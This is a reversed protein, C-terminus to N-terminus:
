RTWTRNIFTRVALWLALGLLVLALALLPYGISWAVAHDDLMTSFESMGGLSAIVGLPLFVVNIITLNKLLVNMNNNILNGRADLMGALVTSFVQGQRSCQNNDIIIDDLLARDREDFGLRDALARLKRLVGGNADVANIHYVLGESLSFMRLLQRNELSHSLEAQIDRSTRKVAKLELLFENVTAGMLHLLVDLPTDAREGVRLISAEDATVITLRNPELFLGISSLGLVEPHERAERQPRKWVIFTREAAEDFELRSIEDPDLVSALTHEDIGLTDLLQRQAAGSPHQYITIVATDPASESLRGGVLSFDRRGEVVSMDAAPLAVLETVTEHKALTMPDLQGANVTSGVASPEVRADTASVYQAIKHLLSDRAAGSLRRSVELRDEDDLAQILHHLLAPSAAAVIILQDDADASILLDAATQIQNEAVLEEFSAVMLDRSINRM